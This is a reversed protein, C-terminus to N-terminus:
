WVNRAVITLGTCFRFSSYVAGEWVGGESKGSTNGAPSQLPYRPHDAPFIKHFPEFELLYAPWFIKRIAPEEETVVQSQVIM